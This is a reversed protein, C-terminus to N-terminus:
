TKIIRYMSYNAPQTQAGTRPTGNTGDSIPNTIQATQTSGPPQRNNTGPSDWGTGVAGNAYFNHTHGQMQDGQTTGPAGTYTIGAITQSGAGRSFIGQTNPVNFTTSGDGVGFTTGYVAFLAAYTTRSIASGNAMVYGAPATNIPYDFVSGTPVGGQAPALNGTINTATGVTGNAYYETIIIVGAGGAGGAFGTGSTGAAGLTGGTGISYSYTSSPNNIIAKIYGGSGGGGGGDFNSATPLAAGGGGGAGTNPSGIVGNQGPGGNAGGGGFPNNGGSGGVGWVSATAQMNYNQGAGGTLAVGIPGTGLSATGGSGSSGNAGNGGGGGGNATLLSTGFTTNGGTGGQTSSSNGGGGGGGGAGVMEVEIYIVNAPTTYTGSSSLFKQITPVNAGGGSFGGTAFATYYETVEILGSGGAGGANLNGGAPGATGGAGISYSYTSLPNSIFAEVYGGAGGGGGADAATSANTGGGGGGAGTNVVGALGNGNVNGAGSGGLPNTGGAGGASYITATNNAGGATGWGGTLAVGIPGTGLSAAGGSGPFAVGGPNGGTCSLLSTGFTTNGGTGGSSNGAGGGGGAVARVSIYQVGSPRTYTGSGSLFVQKTPATSATVTVGSAITQNYYETVIIIGSGGASGPSGSTGATGATGAAGVAYAYTAAPSNILAHIYGGSGGGGGAVGSASSVSAGGGGGGTNSAGAGSAYAIGGGSGGGGLASAGGSGGSMVVGVGSGGSGGGSGGSVLFCSTVGGSSAAGGQGPTTGSGGGGGTGGSATIVSFSTTGGTGGGTATSDTSSGGGGGGGGVMEVTIYAVNAPTTYTGSGSLFKQITPQIISLGAAGILSTVSWSAATTGSTLICVVVVSANPLVTTVLNSGSSNVTLSGTSQNTIVFSQGLVLTSTVPLVITQAATGTFFQQYASGVTLTTTGAATATTAFGELLNNVQTNANVDRFMITSPTATSVLSVATPTSSSGSINALATATAITPLDTLAMATGTPINTTPSLKLFNSM